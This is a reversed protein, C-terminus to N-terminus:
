LSVTSTPLLNQDSGDEDDELDVVPPDEDSEYDVHLAEEEV